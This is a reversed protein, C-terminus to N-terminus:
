NSAASIPSSGRKDPAKHVQRGTISHHRLLLFLLLLVTVECLCLSFRLSPEALSSPLLLVSTAALRITRQAKQREPQLYIIKVSLCWGGHKANISSPESRKKAKAWWCSPFQKPNHVGQWIHIVCTNTQLPPAEEGQRLHAGPPAWVHLVHRHRQSHGARRPGRRLHRREDCRGCYFFFCCRSFRQVSQLFRKEEACWSYILCLESGYQQM